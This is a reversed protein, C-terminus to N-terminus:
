KGGEFHEQTIILEYGAAGVVNAIWRNDLSNHNLVVAKNM